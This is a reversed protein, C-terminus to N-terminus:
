GYHGLLVLPGATLIPEGISVVIRIMAAMMMQRSKQSRRLYSTLSVGGQVRLGGGPSGPVARLSGARLGRLFHRPM